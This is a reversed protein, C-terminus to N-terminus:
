PFRFNMVTHVLARLEERDQALQIWEVDLDDEPNHCRTTIHYPWATEGDQPHLHLCCPGRYPQYGVVDDCPIM